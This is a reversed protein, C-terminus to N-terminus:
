CFTGGAVRGGHACAGVFFMGSSLSAAEDTTSAARRLTTAEREHGLAEGHGRGASKLTALRKRWALSSARAMTGGRRSTDWECVAKFQKSQRQTKRANAVKRGPADYEERMM